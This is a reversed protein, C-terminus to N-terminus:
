GPSGVSAGRAAAEAAFALGHSRQGLLAFFLSGTRVDRSDLTLDTVRADNAPLAAIGDLLWTLSVGPAPVSM